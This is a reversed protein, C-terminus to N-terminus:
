HTARRVAEALAMAIPNHRNAALWARKEARTFNSWRETVIAMAEKITVMNGCACELIPAACRPCRDAPTYVPIDSM